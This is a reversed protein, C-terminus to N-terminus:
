VSMNGVISAFEQISKVRKRCDGSDINWPREVLYCDVGSAVLADYNDLKDEVFVDTKVSTKDSSFDITDYPIEWRTLWKITNRESSNTGLSRGFSRDTVIHISNGMAKIFQLASPADDRPSGQGFIIGLDAGLHCHNVFEDDTMGWDRYFHWKDPEGFAVKYETRNTVSLYRRFSDAFDYCVGDLDIGVRM